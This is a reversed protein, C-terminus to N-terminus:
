LFVMVPGLAFFLLSGALLRRRAAWEQTDLYTRSATGFVHPGDFFVLWVWYLTFMSVGIIQHLFLLAYSTVVSGIFYLLDDRPSILWRASMATAPEYPIAKTGNM